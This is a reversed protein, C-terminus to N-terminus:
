SFSFDVVYASGSRRLSRWMRTLSLASASWNYACSSDESAFNASSAFCYEVSVALLVVPPSSPSALLVLRTLGNASTAKVIRWPTTECGTFVCNPQCRISASPGIRGAPARGRSVVSCSCIRVWSSCSPRCFLMAFCNLVASISSLLSMWNAGPYPGGMADVCHGVAGLQRRARQDHREAGPLGLEHGGARESRQALGPASGRVRQRVGQPRRELTVADPELLARRGDARGIDGGVRERAAQRLHRRQGLAR